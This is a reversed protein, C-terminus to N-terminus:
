IERADTPKITAQVISVNARSREPEDPPNRPVLRQMPESSFQVRVDVQEIQEVRKEIFDMGLSGGPVARRAIEPVLLDIAARSNAAVIVQAPKRHHNSIRKIGPPLDPIQETLHLTLVGVSSDYDYARRDSCVHLPEDNPNEIEISLNLQPPSGSAGVEGPPPRKISVGIIKLLKRKM